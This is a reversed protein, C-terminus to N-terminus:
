AESDEPTSEPPTPYHKMVKCLVDIIQRIHKHSTMLRAAEIKETADPISHFFSM